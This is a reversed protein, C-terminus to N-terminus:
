WSDSSKKRREYMEKRYEWPPVPDKDAWLGRKALRAEKELDSLIKDSNYRKFHWAYGAKIIEQGLERGDDLYTFALIRGGSDKGTVQLIVKEGFCLQSLYKKSARYFPMEREPADIGLMRIRVTGNSEVLLDYTDGDIISIVKGSLSSGTQPVEGQEVCSGLLIMLLVVFVLGKVQM